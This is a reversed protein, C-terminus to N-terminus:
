NHAKIVHMALMVGHPHDYKVVVEVDFSTINIILLKNVWGGEWSWHWM